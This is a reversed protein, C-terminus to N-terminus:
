TVREGNVLTGNQSGPDEIQAHGDIQRIMAHRRSVSGDRLQLSVDDGRGIVITGNASLPFVRTSLEGEFVLLYHRGSTPLESPLALVATQQECFTNEVVAAQQSQAFCRM